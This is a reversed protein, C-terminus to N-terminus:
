KKLDPRYLSTKKKAEELRWKEVRSHDGSILVDPVKLGRFEAPRTYQPGELLLESSSSFSENSLSDANGLVDTILRTTSEIVVMAAVEGGMLVYDGITLELDVALDIVRQDVGEYRGCVLIIETLKSLETAKAQNFVKGSPTLLIVTANPLKSKASEIAAILPEPKMVMGAGGGYPTDDVQKHPNDAHDRIDTINIAIIGRDISKKIISSTLFGKFLDPFITLIEIRM